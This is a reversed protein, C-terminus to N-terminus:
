HCRLPENTTDQERASCVATPNPECRYYEKIQGCEASSGFGSKLATCDEFTCTLPGEFLQSPDKDTVGDCDFDFGGASELPVDFYAAQGPYAREDTDDCDQGCCRRSAFGDGDKDCESGDTPPVCGAGGAGGGVGGGGAGGTEYTISPFSCAALAALLLAPATARARM